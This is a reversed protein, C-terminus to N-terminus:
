YDKQFDDVIYLIDEYEFCRKEEKGTLFLYLRQGTATNEFYGSRRTGMGFGNTRVLNMLLSDSMEYETIEELPITQARGIVNQLVIENRDNVITRRPMGTPINIIIISILAFILAFGIYAQREEEGKDALKRKLVKYILLSLPLYIVTLSIVPIRNPHFDLHWLLPAVSPIVGLAVVSIAMWADKSLKM